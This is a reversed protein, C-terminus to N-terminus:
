LAVLGVRCQKQVASTDGSRVKLLSSIYVGLIVFWAIEESPFLM